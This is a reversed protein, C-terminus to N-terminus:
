SRDHMDGKTLLGETPESGAPLERAAEAAPVEVAPPEVISPEGVPAAVMVAGTNKEAAEAEVRAVQRETFADRVQSVTSRMDDHTARASAAADRLTQKIEEAQLEREVESRVSDWGNRMRRLLAGATRAVGPLREPGLVILAVVALLLMKGFSLEIM